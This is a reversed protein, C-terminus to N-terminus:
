FYQESIVFTKKSNLQINPSQWRNVFVVCSHELVPRNELIDILDYPILFFVAKKLLVGDILKSNGEILKTPGSINMTLYNMVNPSNETFNKVPM